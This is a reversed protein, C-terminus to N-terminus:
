PPLLTLDDAPQQPGPQSEADNWYYFVAQLRRLKLPPEPIYYINEKLRRASTYAASGAAMSQWAGKGNNRM